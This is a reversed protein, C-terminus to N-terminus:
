MRREAETYTQFGGYYSALLLSRPFCVGREGETVGACFGDDSPLEERVSSSVLGVPPSTAMCPRRALSHMTLVM